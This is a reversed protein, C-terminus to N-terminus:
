NSRSVISATRDIPAVDQKQATAFMKSRAPNECNQRLPENRLRCVMEETEFVSLFGVHLVATTVAPIDDHMRAEGVPLLNLDNIRNKLWVIQGTGSSCLCPVSFSGAEPEFGETAKIYATSLSLALEDSVLCDWWEKALEQLGSPTCMKDHVTMSLGKPTSNSNPYLDIGIGLSEM